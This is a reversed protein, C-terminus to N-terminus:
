QARAFLADLDLLVSDGRGRVYALATRHVIWQAMRARHIRATADTTFRFWIVHRRRSSDRVSLLLRRGYRAVHTLQLPEIVALQGHRM